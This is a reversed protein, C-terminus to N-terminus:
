ALSSRPCEALEPLGDAHDGTEEGGQDDISGSRPVVIASRSIIPPISTTAPVGPRVSAAAVVIAVRPPRAAIQISGYRRARSKLKRSGHDSGCSVPKWVTWARIPIPEPPTM